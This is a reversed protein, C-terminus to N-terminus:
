QLGRIRLCLQLDKPMLTVRNAHHTIINADEIVQTVLCETAEQMVKIADASFRISPDVEMAFHKVMRQFPLRPVLTFTSQQYKTIEARVREGPRWRPMQSIQVKAPTTSDAVVTKRAKLGATDKTKQKKDKRQVLARGISRNGGAKTVGKKNGTSARGTVENTTKTVQASM